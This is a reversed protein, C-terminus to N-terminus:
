RAICMKQGLLPCDWHGLCPQDLWVWELPVGELRSFACSEQPAPDSLLLESSLFPCGQRLGAGWVSGTWKSCHMVLGLADTLFETDPALQTWCHWGFPYLQGTFSSHSKCSVFCSSYTSSAECSQWKALFAVAMHLLSGQALFGAASFAWGELSCHSNRLVSGCNDVNVCNWVTEFWMKIKFYCMELPANRNRGMKCPIQM